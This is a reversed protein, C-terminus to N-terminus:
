SPTRHLAGCKSDHHSSAHREQEGSDNGEGVRLRGRAHFEVREARPGEGNGLVEQLSAGRRRRDLDRDTEVDDPVRLAVNQEVRSVVVADDGIRAVPTGEDLPEIRNPRRIHGDVHLEPLDPELGVVELVHDDAVHVQVVASVHALERLRGDDKLLVLDLVGEPPLGARGLVVDGTVEHHQAVVRTLHHRVLVGHDLEVTIQIEERVVADDHLAPHAVRRSALHHDDTKGFRAGHDEGAVAHVERLVHGLVEQGVHRERIIRTPNKGGILVDPLHLRPLSRLEEGGM